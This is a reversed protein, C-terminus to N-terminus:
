HEHSSKGLSHIFSLFAGFLFLAVLQHVIALPIPVVLVLTAIGLCLQTVALGMATKIRCRQVKNLSAARLAIWGFAATALVLTTGLWRHVFQVSFRDELFNKWYPTLTFLSDPAWDGEMKPFTNFGYGAKLGSTFAGYTVQLCLLVLLAIAWRRMEKPAKSPKRSGNLDLIMWWALGFVAFALSLHAALRYHSVEPDRVLGSKVMYWGMLGQAAVLLVLGLGRGKLSGDLRKRWLFWLYPLLCLLGVVRGLVRHLYEWFFIGKFEALSMGENLLKYEPFERYQAFVEEWEADSLPPLVGMVPRWDVMSLGSGTLRTIGGVVLIIVVSACVCRLWLLIPKPNQM